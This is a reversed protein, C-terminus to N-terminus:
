LVSNIFETLSNEDPKAEYEVVQDDKVMIISPYGEIKKNYTSEFQTVKDGEKEGDIEVCNLIHKNFKKGNNESKIKNWIPKAVKSYPCWSANFFYLDAYNGLEGDADTDDFERNEVFTPEMKPLIHYQYFYLAIGLFLVLLGFYMWYKQNSLADSLSNQINSMASTTSQVAEM